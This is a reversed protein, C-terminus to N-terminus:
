REEMLGDAGSGSPFALATTLYHTLHRAAVSPSEGEALFPAVAVREGVMVEFHPRRPPIHYWRDQKTLTGPTCRIHVLRLDAGCRVAINAAGRQLQLAQGPTTRTGEPFILLLGGSALKQQCLPLLAAGEANPLYGAARIVGGMVPNHWLSAKVLCDCRPAVAALLVYDLLSPHNAVLLCGSEGDLREAGQVRYSMVGLQSMLWLFLRFSSRISRQVWWERRRASRFLLLALPFWCLTLVLAGGGFLTFSLLTAVRRWLRDIARWM